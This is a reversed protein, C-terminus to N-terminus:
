VTILRAHDDTGSAQMVFNTPVALSSSAHDRERFSRRAELSRGLTPDYSM